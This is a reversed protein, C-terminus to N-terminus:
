CLDSAPVMKAVKEYPKLIATDLKIERRMSEHEISHQLYQVAESITDVKMLLFEGKRILKLARNV